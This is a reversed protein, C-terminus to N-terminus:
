PRSFPYKFKGDAPHEIEAQLAARVASAFQLDDRRGQLLRHNLLDESVQSQLGPCRRAHWAM